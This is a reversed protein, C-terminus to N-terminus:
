TILIFLALLFLPIICVLSLQNNKKKQKAERKDTNQKGKLLYAKSKPKQERQFRIPVPNFIAKKCAAM